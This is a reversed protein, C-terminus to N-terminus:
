CASSEGLSRKESNDCDNGLIQWLFFVQVFSKWHRFDSTVKHFYTNVTNVDDSIVEQDSIDTIQSTVDNSSSEQSNM